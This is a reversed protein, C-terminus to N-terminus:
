AARRARAMADRVSATGFLRRARWQNHAWCLLRLNEVSPPGGLAHPIIHDLQLFARAGCRRGDAGVFACCGGDRRYVERAVAAPIDRSWPRRKVPRETAAVRRATRGVGFRTKETERVLADLGLKILTMLDGDPQRHSVLARARELLEKFEADATFRVAFRDASLPELRPASRTGAAARGEKRGDSEVNLTGQVGPLRRVSDTVDARPFRAALLEEIDRASSHTCVEFLERANDRTLHRKLLCLASVHLAGTAVLGFAEPFRRCVRAAAIRRGATAECLGLKVVCYKFLSPFGLELQLGRADLEGLHALLDASVENGRRVFGSLARLLEENGLEVLQYRTM